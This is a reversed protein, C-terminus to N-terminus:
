CEKWQALNSTTIANGAPIDVVHVVSTTVWGSASYCTNSRPIDDESLYQFIGTSNRFAQRWCCQVPKYMQNIWSSAVAKILYSKRLYLYTFRVSWLFSLTVISQLFSSLPYIINKWKLMGCVFGDHVQNISQPWRGLIWQLRDEMKGGENSYENNNLVVWM